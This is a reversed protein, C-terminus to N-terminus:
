RCPGNALQRRVPRIGCTVWLYLSPRLLACRNPLLLILLEALQPRLKAVVQIKLMAGPSLPMLNLIAGSLLMKRFIIAIYNM